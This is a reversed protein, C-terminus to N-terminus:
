AAPANTVGRTAHSLAPVRSLKGYLRGRLACLADRPLESCGFDCLQAIGGAREYRGANLWSASLAQTKINHAQLITAIRAGTFQALRFYDASYDVFYGTVGGRDYKKQSIYPSRILDGSLGEREAV